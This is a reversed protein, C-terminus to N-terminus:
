FGMYHLNYHLQCFIRFVVLASVISDHLNYHLQCFITRFEVLNSVISDHLNYHMQIFIHFVVLISV